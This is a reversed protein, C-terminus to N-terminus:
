FLQMALVISVVILILPVIVNWLIPYSKITEQKTELKKLMIMSGLGRFFWGSVQSPVEFLTKLKKLAFFFNGIFGLASTYNLFVLGTSDQYMMDEGFIYGPVGRGIVKGSLQLPKGRAPSAYPDRMQEIVTTSHSASFPYRYPLQLLMGLGIAAPVWTLPLFLFSAIAFLLPLQSVLFGLAFSGYLRGKDIKMRAIAGDVDFSFKKGLEKSLDSLHDIRNGTLPHTSSLEAIKAWPNVRDFVMVEALAKPDANTIYSMIGYHKANQVDMIGLQRTSALLRKSRDDDDAAVIGYAVKILADSLTQPDTIQASFTDALYERTRSLYLLLYIGVIYFVYAALAIIKAYGAKKGRARILVAYIEYMIQVLTSAVMMVIFDRNVIHGLEHAIVAQQEKASLFHFLGETVVIRSNFRGSGYTFATPNKDAIVGFKPFPFKYDSSVQKIVEAVKPYQKTVQAESLFEVKYFIRNTFDSIYPGILWLVFNVAVTLGLALWINIADTFIMAAMVLGFVLSLLVGLTLLSAFILKGM